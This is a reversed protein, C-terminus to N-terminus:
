GRWSKTEKVRVSPHLVQRVSIKCHIFSITCLFYWACYRVCLPHETCSFHMGKEWKGFFWHNRFHGFANAVILHKPIAERWWQLFRHVVSSDIKFEWHSETSQKIILLVSGFFFIHTYVCGYLNKYTYTHTAKIQKQIVHDSVGLFWLLNKVHM